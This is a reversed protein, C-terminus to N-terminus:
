QQCYRRPLVALQQMLSRREVPFSPALSCVVHLVCFLFLAVDNCVVLSNKALVKLARALVYNIPRSKPNSAQWVCIGYMAVYLPLNQFASLM